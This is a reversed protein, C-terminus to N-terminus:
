SLRAPGTANSVLVQEPSTSEVLNPPDYDEVPPLGQGERVYATIVEGLYDPWFPMELGFVQQIKICDLRSDHPRKAKSKFDNSSISLVNVEHTLVKMQQAQAFVARAFEDWSTAQYGCYHYIGFDTFNPTLAMETMKVLAEALPRVPTPNGLQDYVVALESREQAMSLMIKVFNRGFRGFLWSTRVILYKCGSAIIFNEGDLKSKGYICETTTPDSETHPQKKRDAFVYDTSIHILPIGAQACARALNRPGIANASYALSSEDEAKEVNAYAAANIVADAKSDLIASLVHDPKIIDLASHPASVVRHGAKLLSLEVERGVQGHAGTVFILAM